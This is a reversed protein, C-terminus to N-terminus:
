TIGNGFCVVREFNKEENLDPNWLVFYSVKLNKRLMEKPRLM